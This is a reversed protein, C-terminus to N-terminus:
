SPSPRMSSNNIAEHIELTEPNPLDGSNRAIIERMIAAVIPASPPMKTTTEPKETEAAVTQAPSVSLQDTSSSEPTPEPVNDMSMETTAGRQDSNESEASMDTQSPSIGPQDASSNEPTSEPVAETMAYYAANIIAGAAKLKKRRTPNCLTAKMQRILAVAEDDDIEMLDVDTLKIAAVLTEITARARARDKKRKAKACDVLKRSM